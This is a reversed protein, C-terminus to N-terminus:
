RGRVRRKEEIEIDVQRSREIIQKTREIEQRTKEIEQRSKELEQRSREAEQKSIEIIEKSRKVEQGTEEAESLVGMWIKAQGVWPSEPYHATVRQFSGIAKRRDRKPNQPHAYVLGMNYMAVDAPPQGQAMAAVGEFVKLSGDFDGQLLLRDGSALADRLEQERRMDDLASCGCVLMLLALCFYIHQRSRIPKGGM